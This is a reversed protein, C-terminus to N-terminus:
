AVAFKARYDQFVNVMEREVTRPMRMAAACEPLLPPRPEDLLRDFNALMWIENEYHRDAFTRMDDSQFLPTDRYAIVEGADAREDIRHLTNGMKQQNLIAWKFADLGRVAPIFGPHVNLVRNTNALEPEIINSGCILFHDYDSMVTRWESYPHVTAAFARAIERGSPGVFQPPRHAFLVQREPRRSFPMLLFDVTGVGRNKLAM